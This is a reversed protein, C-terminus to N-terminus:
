ALVPVTQNWPLVLDGFQAFQRLTGAAPYSTGDALNQVGWWIDPLAGHRGACLATDSHLGIPHLPYAGSIDNPAAMVTPLYASNRAECTLFLTMNGAPARGMHAAANALAAFTPTPSAPAATSSGVVSAVAPLVWGTVVNSPKAFQWFGATQNNRCIVIRTIEGDDSREVHLVNRGDALSAGWPANALVTQEDTATPAATATGAALSGFGASASIKVTCNSPFNTSLDVLVEFSGGGLATFRFVAWSHNSGANAWILNAPALWKDGLGFSGAGGSGDCSQVVSANVAPAAAAANASDTWAGAGTFAEKIAFMLAQATALVTGTPGFVASVRFRHTKSLAPLAM